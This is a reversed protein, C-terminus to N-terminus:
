GESLGGRPGMKRRLRASEELSESVIQAASLLQDAISPSRRTRRRRRASKRAKPKAAKARRAKPASRTKRKRAAAKAKGGKTRAKKRAKAM